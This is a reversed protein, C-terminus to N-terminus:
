VPLGYEAESYFLMRYKKNKKIKHEYKRAETETDFKKKYILSWDKAIRTYKSKGSNHEELRRNINNTSGVYRKNSSKSFLLYVSYRM